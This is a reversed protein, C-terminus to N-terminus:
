IAVRQTGTEWNLTLKMAEGRRAAKPAGVIKCDAYLYSKKGLDRYKTTESFCLVGPVRAVAAAHIVDLLEDAEKATCEIGVTGKWGVPIADVLTQVTGLPSTRVTEYIPEVNWDVYEYAKVVASDYTITLSTDKGTAALDIDSM